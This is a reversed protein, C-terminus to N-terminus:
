PIRFTMILISFPKMRKNVTKHRVRIKGHIKSCDNPIDCARLCSEIIYGNYLVVMEGSSILKKMRHRFIFVDPNEGCAYPGNVWVIKGSEIKICIEYRLGSGRFKHGFWKGSFNIPVHIRM